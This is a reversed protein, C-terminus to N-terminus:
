NEEAKKTKLMNEFYISTSPFAVSVGERELIEMIRFNIDQKINLYEEWNSTNTFFYVLIDLSSDNFEDFKVLLNEKHVQPHDFLMKEIEQVCMRLKEKSTSYTVGLKFNVRRIGRRSYNVIPDDVLKSNPVTVFAKEFTRIRTSRFNIDEVIGEVQSTKIWDGIDFPRDVIIVIGGFVNAITDKAAMAVALGGLGLGAVFTSVEYGLEEAVIGITIGITIIRLAKSLFPKLIKNTSLNVKDDMKSLIISYAGELNYLGWAILIVISSRFLKILTDNAAYSLPLYRLSWYLGLIVIFLRLPTRFAEVIEDDVTTKTKSTFKLAIRLIFRTFVRRLLLFVLFILLSIGIKELPIGVYESTLERITKLIDM